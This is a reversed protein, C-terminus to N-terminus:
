CFEEISSTVCHCINFYMNKVMKPMPIYLFSNQCSLFAHVPFNYPIAFVPCIPCSMWFWPLRSLDAQWKLRNLVSPLSLLFNSSCSSLSLVAPVFSHCSAWSQAVSVSLWSMIVTVPYGFLIALVAWYIYMATKVMLM